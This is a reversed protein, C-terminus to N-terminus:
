IEFDTILCITASASRMIRTHKADKVERQHAIISDILHWHGSRPHMWTTKFKNAQQFLSNFIVIQHLSCLSLLLTGNSSKCGVRANFDGLLVLKDSTPVDRITESLDEYFAEKLADTDYLTPAYASILTM